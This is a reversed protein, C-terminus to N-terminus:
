PLLFCKQSYCWTHWNGSPDAAGHNVSRILCVVIRHATLDFCNCRCEPAVAPTAASGARISMRARPMSADASRTVPCSRLLGRPGRHRRFLRRDSRRSHASRGAQARSRASAQHRSGRAPWIEHDLDAADSASREQRAACPDKGCLSHLDGVGLASLKAIVECATACLALEAVLRCRMRHTYFYNVSLNPRQCPLNQVRPQAFTPKQRQVYTGARSPLQRPM